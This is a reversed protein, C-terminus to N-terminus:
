AFLPDEEFDRMEILDPYLGEALHQGIGGMVYAAPPATPQLWAAQAHGFAAQVGRRERPRVWMTGPPLTREAEQSIDPLHIVTKYPQDAVDPQLLEIVRWKVDLEQINELRELILGQKREAHHAYFVEPPHQVITHSVDFAHCQKM